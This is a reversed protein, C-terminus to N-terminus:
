NRDMSHLSVGYRKSYKGGPIADYIKKLTQNDVLLLTTGTDAVATNNSALTYTEGDIAFCTSPFQWFGNVTSVPTYHINGGNAYVVGQDIYGFTYFSEGHDPDNIDKYSGLYATFLEASAPIDSQLIM